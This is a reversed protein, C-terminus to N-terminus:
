MNIFLKRDRSALLYDIDIISHMFGYKYLRRLFANIRGKL